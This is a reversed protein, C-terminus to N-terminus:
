QVKVNLQINTKLISSYINRTSPFIPRHLCKGFPVALRKEEITSSLIASSLSLLLFTSFRQNRFRINVALFTSALIIGMGAVIALTAFVSVSIRSPEIIQITRDKPPQKNMWSIAREKLQLTDTSNDYEAVQVEHSGVIQKVTLRGMRENDKFHVRGQSSICGSETGATGCM